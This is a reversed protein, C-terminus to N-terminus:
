DSGTAGQQPGDIPLVSADGPANGGSLADPADPTQVDEAGEQPGDIPLVSAGEPAGNANIEPADDLLSKSAQEGDMGEQPTRGTDVAQAELVGPAALLATVAFTALLGKM